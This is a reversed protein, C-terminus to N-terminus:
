ACRWGSPSKNGPATTEIRIPGRGSTERHPPGAKAKDQEPSEIPVHRVARAVTRLSM